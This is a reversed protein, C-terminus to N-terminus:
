HAVDGEAHNTGTLAVRGIIRFDTSLPPEFAPFEIPKCTSPAGPSITSPNLGSQQEIETGKELVVRPISTETKLEQPPHRCQPRRPKVRGGSAEERPQTSPDYPTYSSSSRTTASAHLHRASRKPLPARLRGLM